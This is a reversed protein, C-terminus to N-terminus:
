RSRQSNAHTRKVLESQNFISKQICPGTSASVNYLSLSNNTPKGSHLTDAVVPDHIWYDALM